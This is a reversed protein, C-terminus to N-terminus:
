TDFLVQFKYLNGILELVVIWTFMHSLHHLFILDELWTTFPVLCMVRNTSEAGIKRYLYYLILSAAWSSALSLFVVSVSGSFSNWVVKSTNIHQEVILWLIGAYLGGFVNNLLGGVLYHLSVRKLRSFVASISWLCTAGCLALFATTIELSTLCTDPHLQVKELLIYNQSGNSINRSVNKYTAQCSIDMTVLCINAVSVAVMGIVGIISGIANWDNAGTRQATVAVVQQLLATLWPTACMFVAGLTPSLYKMAYMFLMYPGCLQLFGLLAARKYSRSSKFNNLIELKNEEDKSALFLVSILFLIVTGPTRLLFLLGPTKYSSIGYHILVSFSGRILALSLFCCLTQTAPIKRGSESEM